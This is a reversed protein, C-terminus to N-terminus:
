PILERRETDVITRTTNGRRGESGKAERRKIKEERKKGTTMMAKMTATAMVKMMM